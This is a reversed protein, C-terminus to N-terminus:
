GKLKQRASKAARSKPWIRIVEGYFVKANVKEGQADFCEGQRLMAWPAFGSDKFQDIVEQFRLVAQQYDEAKMATEARRYTAEDSRAHNPFAELFRNLMTEAGVYNGAKLQKKANDLLVEPKLQPETVPDVVPPTSAAPKTPAAPPVIEKAVVPTQEPTSPPEVPAAPTVTPASAPAAPTVAAETEGNEVKGEWSSPQEAPPAPTPTPMAPPDPTKVGLSRELQDARSELWLVRFQADDVRGQLDKAGEGTAHTLVEVEGRMRATEQRLEDLTEMKLINQQGRSRTLEELQNVRAEVQLFQQEVNYVRVANDRIERQMQATSSQGTRDLVCALSLMVLWSM